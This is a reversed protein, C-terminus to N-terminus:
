SSHQGEIQRLTQRGNLVVKRVKLAMPRMQKARRQDAKLYLHDTVRETHLTMMPLPLSVREPSIKLFQRQMPTWTPAPQTQPKSTLLVKHQRAKVFLLVM